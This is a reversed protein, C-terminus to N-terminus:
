LGGRPGWSSRHSEKIKGPRAVYLPVIRALCVPIGKTVQQVLISELFDLAPLFNGRNGPDRRHIVLDRALIGRLQEKYGTRNAVWHSVGLGDSIRGLLRVIQLQTLRNRWPRHTPDEQPSPAGPPLFEALDNDYLLLLIGTPSEGSQGAIEMRRAYDTLGDGPMCFNTIQVGEEFLLASASEHSEVGWGFGFSDGFIWTRSGESSGTPSSLGARYGRDDGIIGVRFERGSQRGEAGARLFTHGDHQEFLAESFGRPPQPWLVRLTLEIMGLFILPFAMMLLTFIRERRM